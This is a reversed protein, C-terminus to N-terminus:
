SEDLQLLLVLVEDEYPKYMYDYYTDAFLYGLVISFAGKGLNSIVGEGMYILYICNAVGGLIILIRILNVTRNKYRKFSQITQNLSAKIDLTKSFSIEQNLDKFYKFYFIYEYLSFFIIVLTALVPSSISMQNEFWGYKLILVLLAILGLIKLRLEWWFLNRYRRIINNIASGYKSELNDKVKSYHDSALVENSKWIEQLDLKIM